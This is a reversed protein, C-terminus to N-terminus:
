SLRPICVLGPLGGGPVAGSLGMERHVRSEADRGSKRSLAMVAACVECFVADAPYPYDHKRKLEDDM